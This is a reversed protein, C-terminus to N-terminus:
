IGGGFLDFQSGHAPEPEPMEGAMLQYALLGRHKTVGVKSFGAMQYCYGPNSSRVADSDVFTILGNQPPEGWYSRTAAVAEIILESALHESENRFLCNTWSDPWAHDIHAQWLSVWLASADETLLVLNRGPPVFQPSEPKQRNYHRDALPLARRDFRHSIHWRM